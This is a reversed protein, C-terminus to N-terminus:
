PVDLGCLPFCSYPAAIVVYEGPAAVVPAKAACETEPVFGHQVVEDLPVLQAKVGFRNTYVFRDGTWHCVSYRVEKHDVRGAQLAREVQVMTAKPPIAVRAEGHKDLSVNDPSVNSAKLGGPMEVKVRRRDAPKSPDDWWFSVTVDKNAMPKGTKANVLRVTFTQAPAISGLAM